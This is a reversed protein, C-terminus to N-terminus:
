AEAVEILRHIWSKGVHVNARFVQAPHVNLDLDAGNSPLLDDGTVVDINVNVGDDVKLDSIRVPSSEADCVEALRKNLPSLGRKSM